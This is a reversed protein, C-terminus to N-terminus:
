VQDLTLTFIESNTPRSDGVTNYGVFVYYQEDQSSLWERSGSDHDWLKQCSLESCSPGSLIEVRFDYYCYDCFGESFLSATLNAGNGTIKYWIGAPAEWLNEDPFYCLSLVNSDVETVGSLPVERTEGIQLSPATGCVDGSIVADGETSLQLLFNGSASEAGQVLVFYIVGSESSWAVRSQKGCADDNGGVCQLGSCSGTFVSIQTDFGSALGCTSATIAKGNGIVAYWVSPATSISATGCGVWDDPPTSVGNLTTGPVLTNVEPTIPGFANECEENHLWNLDFGYTLEIGTVQIVYEVGVEAVWAATFEDYNDQAPYFHGSVCSTCAVYVEL